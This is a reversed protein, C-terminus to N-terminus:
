SQNGLLAWIVALIMLGGACWGILFGMYPLGEHVIVLGLASSIASPVAFFCFRQLQSESV